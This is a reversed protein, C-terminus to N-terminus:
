KSEQAFFATAKKLIDREMRLIRNESRLRSLEAREDTTLGSAGGNRDARAQNVWRGLVSQALGLDRAAGACSRGEDLVLRTAGQKFEETFTRRVNPKKNGAMNKM